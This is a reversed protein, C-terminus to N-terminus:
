IIPTNLKIEFKNSDILKYINSKVTTVYVFCVVAKDKNLKLITYGKHRGETWKVNDNEVIFGEEISKTLPHMYNWLSKYFFPYKAFAMAVVGMWPVNFALKTNIYSKKLSGKALYEPTVIIKPIPSPKKRPFAYNM